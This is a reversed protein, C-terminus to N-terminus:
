LPSETSTVGGGSPATHTHGHSARIRDNTTEDVILGADALQSLLSELAPINDTTGTIVPPKPLLCLAFTWFGLDRSILWTEGEAPRSGKARVHLPVPRTKGFENRVTAFNEEILVQEVMVKEFPLGQGPRAPHTDTGATM